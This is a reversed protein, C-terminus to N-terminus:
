SYSNQYQQVLINMHIHVYTRITDSDEPNKEKFYEPLQGAFFQRFSTYDIKNLKKFSRSWGISELMGEIKPDSISNIFRQILLNIIPISSTNGHLHISYNFLREYSENKMIESFPIKLQKFRPVEFASSFSRISSINEYHCVM